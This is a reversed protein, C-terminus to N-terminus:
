VMVGLEDTLYFFIADVVAPLKRQRGLRSFNSGCNQRVARM